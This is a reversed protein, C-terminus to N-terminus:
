SKDGRGLIDIIFHIVQAGQPLSLNCSDLPICVNSHCFSLPISANPHTQLRAPSGQLLRKQELQM